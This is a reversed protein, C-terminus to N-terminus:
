LVQDELQELKKTICQFDDYMDYVGQNHTKRYKTFIEKVDEDIEYGYANAAQEAIRIGGYPHFARKFPKNTQLGVIKELDKNIYGAGHSTISSIVKTDMDIVGGKDKEEKLYGKFMENLKLSADTTGVLFESNGLYETYNKNIFDRVDIEKEWNGSKFGRWAKM